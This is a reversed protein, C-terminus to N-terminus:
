VPFQRVWARIQGETAHLIEIRCEFSQSGPPSKLLSHVVQARRRLEKGAPTKFTDDLHAILRTIFTLYKRRLIVLKKWYAVHTLRPSKMLSTSRMISHHAHYLTPLFHCRRGM